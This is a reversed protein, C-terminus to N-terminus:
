FCFRGNERTRRTLYAPQDLERTEDGDCIRRCHDLVMEPASKMFAVAGGISRHITTMRKRESSFPM